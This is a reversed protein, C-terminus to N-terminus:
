SENVYAPTETNSIVSETGYGYVAMIAYAYGNVFQSQGEDDYNSSDGLNVFIRQSTLEGSNQLSIQITSSSGVKLSGTESVYSYYYTVVITGDRPLYGDSDAEVAVYAGPNDNEDLAAEVSVSINESVNNEAITFTVDVQGYVSVEVIFTVTHRDMTSVPNIGLVTDGVKASFSEIQYGADTYVTIYFNDNIRSPTSLSAHSSEGELTANITYTESAYMPTLTITKNEDADAPNVYYVVSYTGSTTSWGSVTKGEYIAPLGVPSDALKTYTSDGVNVTYYVPEEPSTVATLSAVLTVDAVPTYYGTVVDAESGGEVYWGNFIYGEVSPTPLLISSGNEVTVSSGYSGGNVLFSVTFKELEPAPAEEFQVGYTFAYRATGDTLILEIAGESDLADAVIVSVLSKDVNYWNNGANSERDDWTYVAGDYTISEVVSPASYHLAGLFRALDNMMPVLEDPVKEPVNGSEILGELFEGIESDYTVVVNGNVISFDGTYVFGGDYPYHIAGEVIDMLGVFPQEPTTGSGSDEKYVAYFNTDVASVNVFVNLGHVMPGNPELAWGCLVYGEPIHTANPTQIQKDGIITQELIYDGGITDKTYFNATYTFEVPIPKKVDTGFWNSDSSTVEATYTGAADIVYSNTGEIASVTTGGPATLSSTFGTPKLEGSSVSLTLVIQDSEDESIDWSIMDGIIELAEIKVDDGSLSFYYSIDESTQTEPLAFNGHDNNSLVIGTVYVTKGTGADASDYVATTVVVTPQAGAQSVSVTYDDSTIDEVPAVVKGDFTKDIFITSGGTFGLVFPTIGVTVGNEDDNTFVVETSTLEYNAIDTGTLSLGTVTLTDAEDVNPSNYKVYTANNTWAFSVDDDGIVGTMQFDDAAMVRSSYGNYVKTIQAGAAPSVTIDRQDITLASSDNITVAYNDTVDVDGNKITLDGFSLGSTGTYKGADAGSTTATVTLQDGEVGTGVTYTYGYVNGDYEKELATVTVDIAKKSISGQLEIYYGSEADGLIQATEDNVVISYNTPATGEAFTIPVRVAVSDDANIDTYEPEGFTLGPIEEPLTIDESEVATTGDYTKEPSGSVSVEAKDVIWSCEIVNLEGAVAYGFKVSYASADIIESTPITVGDSWVTAEDISFVIYYWNGDTAQYAGTSEPQAIQLFGSAALQGETVSVTITPLPQVGGDYVYGGEPYTTDINVGGFTADEYIQNAVESPEAENGESDQYTISAGNQNFDRWTINTPTGDAQPKIIISADESLTGIIIIGDGSVVMNGIWSGNIILSGAGIVLEGSSKLESVTFGNGDPGAITGSLMAGDQMTITHGDSMILTGAVINWTKGAGIIYDVGYAGTEPGVEDYDSAFITRGPANITLDAKILANETGTDWPNHKGEDYAAAGLYTGINVVVSESITLDLKDVVGNPGGDTSTTEELLGLALIDITGSGLDTINITADAIEGRNATSILSVNIDKGEAADLTVTSKATYGNIGGAIINVFDGGYINMTSSEVYAYSQFGGAIAQAINGGNITITATGTYNYDKMADIRDATLTGCFGGAAVGYTLTGGNITITATGVSADLQGGGVLAYLTGGNMTITSSEVDKGYSGGYVTYGSLDAYCILQGGSMLRTWGETVGEDIVAENGQLCIFSNNLYVGYATGICATATIDIKPWREEPTGVNSVSISENPTYSGMAPGSAYQIGNAITVVGTAQVFGVIGGSLVDDSTVTGSNSVFIVKTEADSRNDVHAVIGGAKAKVVGSSLDEIETGNSTVDAYNSCNQITGGYSKGIIGGTNDGGVVSSGDTTFCNKVMTSNFMFGAILGTADYGTVDGGIILDQVTADDLAGFLGLTVENNASNEYSEKDVNLGTIAFGDGDFTGKFPHSAETVGTGNRFSLGIPEWEHGGLDINSVLTVTINSSDNGSNVWNALGKLDAGSSISFETTGAEYSTASTGDWAEGSTESPIAVAVVSVALLLVLITALLRSREKGIAGYAAGGENTKM